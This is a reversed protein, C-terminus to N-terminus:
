GKTKEDFLSLNKSKEELEEPKIGNCIAEHEDRQKNAIEYDWSAVSGSYYFKTHCERCLFYHDTPKTVHGWGTGSLKTMM